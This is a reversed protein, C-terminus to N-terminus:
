RPPPPSSITPTTTVHDGSAHATCRYVYLRTKHVAFLQATREHLTERSKALATLQKQRASNYEAVVTEYKKLASQLNLLQDHHEGGLVPRLVVLQHFIQENAEIEEITAAANEM